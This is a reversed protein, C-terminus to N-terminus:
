RRGKKRIERREEKNRRQEEKAICQEEEGWEKRGAGRHKARRRTTISLVHVHVTFM